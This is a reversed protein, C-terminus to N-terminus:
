VGNVNNKPLPQQFFTHDVATTTSTMAQKRDSLLNPKLYLANSL